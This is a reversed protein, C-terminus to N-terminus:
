LAPPAGRNKTEYIYCRFPVRCSPASKRMEERKLGARVNDVHPKKISILISTMKEEREIVRDIRPEGLYDCVLDGFFKLAMGNRYCRFDEVCEDNGFGCDVLEVLTEMHSNFFGINM